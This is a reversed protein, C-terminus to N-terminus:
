KANPNKDASDDKNCYHEVTQKMASHFYKDSVPMKEPDEIGKAKFGEIAKDTWKVSKIKISNNTLTQGESTLAFQCGPSVFVHTDKNDGANIKIKLKYSCPAPVVFVGYEGLKLNSDKSVEFGSCNPNNDWQQEARANVIVKNVVYAGGNGYVIAACPNATGDAQKGKCYDATYEYKKSAAAADNVYSFIGLALIAATCVLTRKAM